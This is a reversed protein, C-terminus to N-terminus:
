HNPISERVHRAWAHFIDRAADSAEASDCGAKVVGGEPLWAPTLHEAIHELDNPSLYASRTVEVEHRDAHYVADIQAFVEATGGEIATQGVCESLSLTRSM